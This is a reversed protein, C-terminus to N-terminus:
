PGVPMVWTSSGTCLIFYGRGLEIPFDNAYGGVRHGEWNGAEWRFIKTVSGGQGNISAALTSAPYDTAPIDSLAWLNLGANFEEEVASASFDTCAMDFSSPGATLIFYGRGLEIPFDIEQIDVRYAEWGGRDWRYIKTVSGGQENILAALTSAAYDELPVASFGRLNLGANLSYSALIGQGVVAGHTNELSVTVPSGTADALKVPPESQVSNVFNINATGAAKYKFTITALIKGDPGSSVPQHPNLLTIRYDITGAANDVENRGIFYGGTGSSYSYYYKVGTGPDVYYESPTFPFLDSSPAIQIADKNPDFDQVELLDQPFKLHIEAAYFNDVNAVKVTITATGDVPIIQSSPELFVSPTLSDQALANDNIQLLSLGALTLSLIFTLMLRLSHGTMMKAM